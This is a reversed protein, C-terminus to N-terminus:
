KVLIKQVIRTGDSLTTVKINVAGNVPADIKVGNINYYEVKAAEAKTGAVFTLANNLATQAATAAASYNTNSDAKFVIYFNDAVSWGDASTLILDIDLKGDSVLISDIFADSTVNQAFSKTYTSDITAGTLVTGTGKNKKLDFGLTYYGNPLDEITTKLEAKSNWDMGIVGDFATLGQEYSTYVEDGTTVMCNGQAFAKVTWGPYLDTFEQNLIMVWIPMNGNNNWQHRAHQIQAGDPDPGLSSNNAPVQFEMREVVKPTAFLGPNKIFATLPLSDVKEGAAIKSYLKATIAKKYIDALEEDSDVIVNARELRQAIREADGAAFSVGVTDALIKLKNVQSAAFALKGEKTNVEAIRNNINAAMNRIEAPSYKGYEVVDLRDLTAKLSVMEPWEAYAIKDNYFKQGANYAIVRTSDVVDFRAQLLGASTNIFSTVKNYESPKTDKFNVFNQAVAKVATYTGGQYAPTTDAKAVLADISEQAAKLARLYPYAVPLADGKKVVYIFYLVKGGQHGGGYSGERFLKFAIKYDGAELETAHLVDVKIEDVKGGEEPKFGPGNTGTGAFQEKIDLADDDATYLEAIYDADDNWSAKKCGTMGWIIDYDGDEPISFSYFLKACENENNNAGTNKGYLGWMLGKSYTSQFTQVKTACRESSFNEIPCSNTTYDSVAEGGFDSYILGEPITSEGFSYNVIFPNGNNAYDTSKGKLQLLRFEYDGKLSEKYKAPREFVLVSDTTGYGKVFWIEKRVGNQFLHLVALNTSEDANEDFEVKRSFKFSMTETNPDLNFSGEEYGCRQLVPPLNKMSVVGKGINPNKISLENHFDPVRKGAKIWEVDLAKPFMDGNYNLELKPDEPNIFSVLVSDYSDFTVKRETGNPALRPKTWMYMYGDGQYEASAIEVKSWRHTTSDMGWVEFYQGPLEVAAIKNQEFAAQARENLNTKYGFDVRIMDGTHEVGGIWSKTLSLNDVDFVTSDSRFSLRAFFKNPQRIFALSDYDAVGTNRWKWEDTWWYGNSLMYNDAISDNLYYTMFVIKTWENNVFNDKQFTFERNYKYNNGDNELGMTFPKESAFYGRMVDARFTPTTGALKTTKVYVTLRYSTEPEIPLGRVFLNRRYEPVLGSSYSAAKSGNGSSYRFFKQGGDVGFESLAQNRTFDGAADTVITYNDEAFALSDMDAQSDTQVVGNYLKILTDRRLFGSHWEVNESDWPKSIAANSQATKNNKYYFVGDITDVLAASWADFDDEFKQEFVLKSDQDTRVPGNQASMPAALLILGALIFDRKKM